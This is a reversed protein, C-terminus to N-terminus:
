FRCLDFMKELLYTIIVYVFLYINIWILSTNLFKVNFSLTFRDINHWSIFYQLSKNIHCKTNMHFGNNFIICDETAERLLLIATILPTIGTNLENRSM